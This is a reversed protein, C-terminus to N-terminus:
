PNFYWFDVPAAKKGILREWLVKGTTDGDKRAVMVITSYMGGKM